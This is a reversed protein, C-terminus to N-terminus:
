ACAAHTASDFGRPARRSIPLVSSTVTALRCELFIVRTLLRAPCPTSGPHVVFTAAAVLICCPFPLRNKQNTEPAIGHLTHRDTRPTHRKSCCVGLATCSYFLSTSFKLRSNGMCSRLSSVLPAVAHYASSFPLSFRTVSSTAPPWSPSYLSPSTTPVLNKSKGFDETGFSLTEV